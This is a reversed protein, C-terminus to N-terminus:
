WCFLQHIDLLMLDPALDLLSVDHGKPCPVVPIYPGDIGDGHDQAPLSLSSPDKIIYEVLSERQFRHPEKIGAKLCGYCLVHQELVQAGGMLRAM